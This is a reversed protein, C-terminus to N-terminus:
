PINVLLTQNKTQFDSNWTDNGNNYKLVGWYNETRCWSCNNKSSDSKCGSMRRGLGTEEPRLVTKEVEGGSYEWQEFTKVWSSHLMAGWLSTCSDAAEEWNISELRKPPVDWTLQKSQQTDQRTKATRRLLGTSPYAWHGKKAALRLLRNLLYNWDTTMITLILPGFHPHDQHDRPSVTARVLPWDWQPLWTVKAVSKGLATACGEVAKGGLTIHRACM